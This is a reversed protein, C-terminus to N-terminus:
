KLNCSWLHPVFFDTWSNYEKPYNIRAFYEMSYLSIIWCNGYILSFWLFINGLNKPTNRTVFILFVGIVGFFIFIVPFTVQLAYGLVYEHFIASITFVTLSSLGKSGKFVYKYCDKYIYEYLWDHVVVNWNRYYAEYNSVTWWDRYFMRDGFRLLEATFNLWAHLIMYFGALFIIIGPMLMGFLKITINSANSEQLCFNEFNHKIHHDYIYNYLFAVAVVELFRALAFRWRITSTRPYEDRFLLTPAFLFYLYKHFKPFNIKAIEQEVKVKGEVIRPVMTRVFSHM